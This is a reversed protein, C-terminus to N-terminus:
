IDQYYLVLEKIYKLLEIKSRVQLKSYINKIHTKVTNESINLDQAIMKYTEGTLLLKTIEIERVTLDHQKLFSVMANEASEKENEKQEDSMDQRETKDIRYPSFGILFTNDEIVEALRNYLLPLAILTVFVVGVAITSPNIRDSGVSYIADGTIIGIFIGAINASLGVGFVKVPNKTFTLMEGLITWWFLDCIGFAGLMLTDIVIYSLASNDMIFFLIYAFGIMTVAIYMIYSKNFRESIRMMMFIAGIYPVAWYISFLVEHHAFAPNVVRYMMGSNITIFAIFICLLMLPTRLDPLKGTTKKVTVDGTLKHATCILVAASLVAMSLIVGLIASVNAAIVNLAIMIVNGFIIVTAATKLRSGPKTYQQYYYGWGAISMGTFFSSILMSTKWVELYPLLLTFTGALCIWMSSIILRRAASFDSVFFGTLVLGLFHIMIILDIYTNSPIINIEAMRAFFVQGQFPVALLWGSFLSFYLISVKQDDKILIKRM